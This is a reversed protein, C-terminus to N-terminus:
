EIIIQGNMFLSLLKDRQKTLEECEVKMQKIKHFIPTTTENLRKLLDKNPKIRSIKYLTSATM